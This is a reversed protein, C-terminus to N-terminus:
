SRREYIVKGTKQILKRFPLDVERLYVIDVDYLGVAQKIEEFITREQRASPKHVDIAFDFDSGRHNKGKARSGFLIIKTPSLHRKLIETVREM